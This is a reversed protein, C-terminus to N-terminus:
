LKYLKLNCIITLWEYGELVKHRSYIQKCIPCLCDGGARSWLGEEIKTLDWSMPKYTGTGLMNIGVKESGYVYTHMDSDLVLQTGKDGIM